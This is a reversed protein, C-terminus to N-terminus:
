RKCEAVMNIAPLKLIPGLKSDSELQQRIDKVRQVSVDTAIGLHKARIELIRTVGALFDAVDLTDYSRALELVEQGAEAAQALKKRAEENDRRITKRLEIYALTAKEIEAENGSQAAKRILEAASSRDRFYDIPAEVLTDHFVTLRHVLRAGLATSCAVANAGFASGEPLRAFAAGFEVYAQKAEELAKVRAEATDRAFIWSVAGDLEQNTVTKRATAAAKIQRVSDQIQTAESQRGIAGLIHLERFADIAEISKDRFAEAATKLAIAKDETCGGLVVCTILFVLLAAKQHNERM